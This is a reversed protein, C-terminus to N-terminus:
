RYHAKFKAMGADFDKQFKDREAQEVKQKHNVSSYVSPVCSIFLVAVIITIGVFGNRSPKKGAMEAVAGILGSFAGILGILMTVGVALLLMNMIVQALTSTEM